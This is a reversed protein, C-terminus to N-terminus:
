SGSVMRASFYVSPPEPQVSMLHPRIESIYALYVESVAVGWAPGHTVKEFEEESVDTDRGRVDDLHSWALAHAYEHLVVNIGEDPFLGGSM